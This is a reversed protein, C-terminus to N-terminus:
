NIGDQIPFQLCYERDKVEFFKFISDHAWEIEAAIGPEITPHCRKERRPCSHWTYWKDFLVDVWYKVTTDTPLNEAAIETVTLSARCFSICSSFMFFVFETFVYSRRQVTETETDRRDEDEDGGERSADQIYFYVSPGKQAGVDM